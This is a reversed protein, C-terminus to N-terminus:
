DKRIRSRGRQGRKKKTTKKRTLPGSSRDEGEPETRSEPSKVVASNIAMKELKHEQGVIDAKDVLGQWPGHHFIGRPLHLTYGNRLVVEQRM